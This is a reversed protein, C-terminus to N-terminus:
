QPTPSTEILVFHCRKDKILEHTINYDAFILRFILLTKFSYFIESCKDIFANKMKANFIECKFTM